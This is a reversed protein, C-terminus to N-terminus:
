AAADSEGKKVLERRLANLDDAFEERMLVIVEAFIKRLLGKDRDLEQFIVHRCTRETWGRMYGDEGFERNIVRAVVREAIKEAWVDWPKQQEANMVVASLTTEVRGEPQSPKPVRANFNTKFVLEPNGKTVANDHSVDDCRWRAAERRERMDDLMADRTRRNEEMLQEREYRDM